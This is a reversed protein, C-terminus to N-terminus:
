RRQSGQGWHTLGPSPSQLLPLFLLLDRSERAGKPTQRHIHCLSLEVKTVKWVVVEQYVRKRWVVREEGKGEVM